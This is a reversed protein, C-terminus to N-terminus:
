TDGSINVDVSDEQKKTVLNFCQISDNTGHGIAYLYDGIKHLRLRHKQVLHEMPTLVTWESSKLDFKCVNKHRLWVLQRYSADVQLDTSALDLDRYGFAVYIATDDVVAFGCNCVDLVPDPCKIPFENLHDLLIVSFFFIFFIFIFYIFLFIFLYHWARNQTKYSM